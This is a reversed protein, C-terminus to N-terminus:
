HQNQNRITGELAAVPYAALILMSLSLMPEPMSLRLEHMSPSPSLSLIPDHMSLSPSLSLSLKLPLPPWGSGRFSLRLGLGLRLMCSGISLRLGLRLMCTRMQTWPWHQPHMLQAQAHRLWHQAQAHQDQSCIKNSRQFACNSILILVSM